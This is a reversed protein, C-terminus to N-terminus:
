GEGQRDGTVAVVAVLNGSGVESGSGLQIELCKKKKMKIVIM